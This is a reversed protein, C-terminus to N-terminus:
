WILQFDERVKKFLFVEESKEKWFKRSVTLNAVM